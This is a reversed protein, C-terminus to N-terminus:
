VMVENTTIAERSDPRQLFCVIEQIASETCIHDLLTLGDTGPMMIDSLVLNYDPDQSLRAIAEEASETLTAAYGSQELLAAIVDRASEEHDVVLIREQPMPKKDAASKNKHNKEPVHKRPKQQPKQLPNTFIHHNESPSNTTLKHHISPPNHHNSHM